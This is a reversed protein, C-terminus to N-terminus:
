DEHEEVAAEFHFVAAILIRRNNLAPKNMQNKPQPGAPVRYIRPHPPAGRGRM